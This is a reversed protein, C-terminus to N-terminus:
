NAVEVQPRLSLVAHPPFWWFIASLSATSNQGHIKGNIAFAYGARLLREGIRTQQPRVKEEQVDACAM